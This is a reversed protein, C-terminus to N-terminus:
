RAVPYRLVKEGHDMEGTEEFGLNLYLREAVQNEPAYSIYIERCAPDATIRDLLAVMAARGYGRGQHASDVMLRIIWYRGDDADTGWMAFGVLDAGAYLALPEWTPEFKSQAISYLNPAVFSQQDDALHLRSVQRWNDRTIPQLSITM